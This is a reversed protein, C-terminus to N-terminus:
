DQDHLSGWGVILEQLVALRISQLPRELEAELRATAMTQANVGRIELRLTTDPEYDDSPLGLARWQLRRRIALRFGLRSDQQQENRFPSNFWAENNSEVHGLANIRIDPVWWPNDRNTTRSPPPLEFSPDPKQPISSTLKGQWQFRRHFPVFFSLGTIGRSDLRAKIFTALRDVNSEWDVQLEAAYDRDGVLAHEASVDLRIPLIYPLVNNREVNRKWRLTTLFRTVGLRRHSFDYNAGVIVTPPGPTKVFPVLARESRPDEDPPGLVHCQVKGTMDLKLLDAAQRSLVSSSSGNEKDISKEKLLDTLFSSKLNLNVDASGLKVFCVSILLRWLPRCGGRGTRMLEM